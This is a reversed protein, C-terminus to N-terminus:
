SICVICSHTAAQRIFLKITFGNEMFLASPQLLSQWSNNWPKLCSYDKSSSREATKKRRRKIHIKSGPEVRGGEWCGALWAWTAAAVLSCFPWSFCAFHCHLHATVRCLHHPLLYGVLEGDLLTAKFQGRGGQALVSKFPTQSCQRLPQQM